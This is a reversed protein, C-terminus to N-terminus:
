VMDAFNLSRLYVLGDNFQGNPLQNYKALRFKKKFLSWVKRHLSSVLAKNNGGIEGIRYVTENKVQILEYEQQSTLRSNNEIKDLRSVIDVHGQAILQIQDAITLPKNAQKELEDLRNIIKMRLEFSYGSVIGLAINKPLVYETQERNMSDLYTHGFKLTDEKLQVEIDRKVNKHQKNTLSAIDRSTIAVENNNVNLLDNM